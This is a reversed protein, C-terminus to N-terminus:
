GLLGQMRTVLNSLYFLHVMLEPYAGGSTHLLENSSDSLFLRITHYVHHQCLLFFFFLILEEAGLNVKDLIGVPYQRSLQLPM